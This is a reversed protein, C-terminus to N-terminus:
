NVMMQMPTAPTNNTVTVNLTDGPHVHLTPNQIGNPTMFCFLTRGDSDKRTQYSFQVNLVGDDSFLSPPNHVVGGAAPRPCPTAIPPIPTQAFVSIQALVFVAVGLLIKPNLYPIRPLDRRSNIM